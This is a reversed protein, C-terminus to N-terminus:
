LNLLLITFIIVISLWKVVFWFNQQERGTRYEFPNDM